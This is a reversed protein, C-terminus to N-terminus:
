SFSPSNLNGEDAQHLTTLHVSHEGSDTTNSIAPFMACSHAPADMTIAPTEVRSNDKHTQRRHMMLGSTRLPQTCFVMLLGSHASLTAMLQGQFLCKHLTSYSAQPVSGSPQACSDLTHSNGTLAPGQRHRVHTYIPSPLTQFLCHTLLVTMTISILTTLITHLKTFSYKM